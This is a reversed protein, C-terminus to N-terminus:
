VVNKTQSGRFSFSSQLFTFQQFFAILCHVNSATSRDRITRTTGQGLQAVRTSKLRRRSHPAVSFSLQFVRGHKWRLHPQNQNEFSTPSPTADRHARAVSWSRVKWCPRRTKRAFIRLSFGPIKLLTKSEVAFESRDICNRYELEILNGIITDTSCSVDKWTVHPRCLKGNENEGGTERNRTVRFM